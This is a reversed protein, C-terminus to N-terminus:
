PPRSPRPRWRRRPRLGLAHGLLGLGLGRNHWSKARLTTPLMIWSSNTWYLASNSITASPSAQSVLIFNGKGLLQKRFCLRGLGLLMRLGLSGSQLDVPVRGLWLDNASRSECTPSFTKSAFCGSCECCTHATQDPDGIGACSPSIADRAAPQEASGLVQGESIFRRGRSDPRLPTRRSDLLWAMSHDARHLVSSALLAAKPILPRREM